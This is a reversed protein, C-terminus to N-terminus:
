KTRRSIRGGKRGAKTVVEHNRGFGKCVCVKGGKRGINVFYDEGYKDKITQVAKISGAKTGSM